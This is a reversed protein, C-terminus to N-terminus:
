EDEGEDDDDDDPDAEIAAASMTAARTYDEVARASDEAELLHRIADARAESTLDGAEDNLDDLYLGAERLSGRVERIAKRLETTTAM